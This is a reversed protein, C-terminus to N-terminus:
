FSSKKTIPNSPIKRSACYEWFASDDSSVFYNPANLSLVNTTYLPDFSLLLDIDNEQIEDLSSVVRIKINSDIISADFSECIRQYISDLM